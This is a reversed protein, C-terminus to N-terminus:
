GESHWLGKGFKSAVIKPQEGIKPVRPPAGLNSFSGGSGTRENPSDLDLGLSEDEVAQQTMQRGPSRLSSANRIASVRPSSPHSSRSFNSVYSLHPAMPPGNISINSSSSFTSDLVLEHEDRNLSMIAEAAALAASSLAPDANSMLNFLRPSYPAPTATVNTYSGRRVPTNSRSVRGSSYRRVAAVTAVSDHLEMEASPHRSLPTDDPTSVTRFSSNSDTRLFTSADIGVYPVAQAALRPTNPAGNLVSPSQNLFPLSAGTDSAVSSTISGTSSSRVSHRSDSLNRILAWGSSNSLNSTQVAHPVGSGTVLCQAVLSARHLPDMTEISVGSADNTSPGVLFPLASISTLMSASTRPEIDVSDEASEGSNLSSLSMQCVFVPDPAFWPIPSASPLSTPILLTSPPPQPQPPTPSPTPNPDPHQQHLLSKTPFVRARSANLELAAADKRAAQVLCEAHDAKVDDSAVELAANVVAFIGLSAARCYSKLLESWHLMGAAALARYIPWLAIGGASAVLARAAPSLSPIVPPIPIIDGSLLGLVARLVRVHGATICRTLRAIIRCTLQASVPPVDANSACGSPSAMM